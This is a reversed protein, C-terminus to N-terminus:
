LPSSFYHLFSSSYRSSSFLLTFTSFLPYLLTSFIHLLITFLLSSPFSPLFTINPSELSYRTCALHTVKRGCDGEAGVGTSEEERQCPLVYARYTLILNLFVFNFFYLFLISCIFVLAFLSIFFHSLILQLFTSLILISPHM